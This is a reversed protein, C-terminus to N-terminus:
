GPKVAAREAVTMSRYVYFQVSGRGWNIGNDLWFRARRDARIRDVAGRVVKIQEPTVGKTVHVQGMFYALSPIGKRARVDAAYDRQKDSVAELPPLDKGFLDQYAKAWAEGRAATNNAYREDITELGLGSRITGFPQEEAAGAAQASGASAVFKGDKWTGGMNGVAM